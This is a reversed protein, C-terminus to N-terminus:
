HFLIYHLEFDIPKGTDECKLCVSVWRLICVCVCTEVYVRLFVFWRGPRRQSQTQGCRLKQQVPAVPVNALRMGMTILIESKVAHEHGYIDKLLGTKGM